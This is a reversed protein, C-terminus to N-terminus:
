KGLEASFMVTREESNRPRLGKPVAAACRGNESNSRARQRSEYWFHISNCMTVTIAPKIEGM